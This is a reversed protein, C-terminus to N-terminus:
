IVGGLYITRFAAMFRDTDAAPDAGGAKISLASVLRYLEKIVGFVATAGSRLGVAM